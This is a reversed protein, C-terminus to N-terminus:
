TRKIVLTKDGVHFIFYENTLKIGNNDAKLFESVDVDEISGIPKDDLLIDAKGIGNKFNVDVYYGQYSRSINNMQHLYEGKNIDFVYCGNFVLNTQIYIVATDLDINISDPVKFEQIKNFAMDYLVLTKDKLTVVRDGIIAYLQFDYDTIKGEKDVVAYQNNDSKSSNKLLIVKEGCAKADITRHSAYYNYNSLSKIKIADGIEKFNKDLVRLTENNGVFYLGNAYEVVDYKFDLKVSDNTNIIGSKGNKVAIFLDDHLYVITEYKPTILAKNDVIDYVGYSYKKGDTVSNNKDNSVIVYRGGYIKRTLSDGTKLLYLKGLDIEKISGNDLVALHTGDDNESYYGVLKSGSRVIRGDAAFLIEESVNQINGTEDIKKIVYKIKSGDNRECMFFSDKMMSCAKDDDQYVVKGELNTIYGAEKYNVFLHNDNIFSSKGKAIDIMPTTPKGEDEYTENDFSGGSSSNSGKKIVKPFVLFGIVVILLVIVVCLVIVIKNVGKNDVFSEDDAHKGITEEETKDEVEEDDEGDKRPTKPEFNDEDDMVEQDEEENNFEMHEIKEQLEALDDEELNDNEKELEEEDM